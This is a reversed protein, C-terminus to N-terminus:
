KMICCVSQNDIAPFVNLIYFSRLDKENVM